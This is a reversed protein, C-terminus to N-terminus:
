HNNILFDKQTNLLTSTGHTVTFLIRQRTQYDYYFALKSLVKVMFIEKNVFSFMKFCLSQYWSCKAKAKNNKFWMLYFLRQARKAVGLDTKYCCPARGCSVTFVQQSMVPDLASIWCAQLNWGVSVSHWNLISNWNHEWAPHLLDPSTHISQKDGMNELGITSKILAVHIM